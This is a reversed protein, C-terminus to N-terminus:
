TPTNRRHTNPAVTRSATDQDKTPQLPPGRWSGNPFVTAQARAMEQPSGFGERWERISPVMADQMWKELLEEFAKSMGMGSTTVRMLLLEELKLRYARALEDKGLLDSCYAVNSLAHEIAHVIGLLGRDSIGRLLALQQRFGPSFPAEIFARAWQTLEDTASGLDPSHISHSHLPSLLSNDSGFEDSSDDTEDSTTFPSGDDLEVASGLRDRNDSSTYLDIPEGEDVVIGSTDQDYDVDDSETGSDESSGDYPDPQISAIIPSSPDYFHAISPQTAFAVSQSRHSVKTSWGSSRIIEDLARDIDIKM